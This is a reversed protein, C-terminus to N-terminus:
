RNWQRIGVFITLPTSKTMKRLTTGTGNFASCDAEASISNGSSVALLSQRPWKSGTHVNSLVNSSFM